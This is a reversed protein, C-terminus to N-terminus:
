SRVWSSPWCSNGCLIEQHPGETHALKPKKVTHCSPELTFTQVWSWPSLVSGELPHSSLWPRQTLKSLSSYCFVLLSLQKFSVFQNRVTWSALLGPFPPQLNTKGQPKEGQHAARKSPGWTTGHAWVGQIETHGFKRTKPRGQHELPQSETCPAWTRDGILLSSEVHRLLPWRDWMGYSLGAALYIKKKIKKRKKYVCCDPPNPARIRLPKM